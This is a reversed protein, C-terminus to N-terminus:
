APFLRRLPVARFHRRYAEMEEYARRLRDLSLRAKPQDRAAGDGPALRLTLDDIWALRIRGEAALLDLGARVLARSGAVAGCLVDLMLADDDQKLVEIVNYVAVTLQRLHAEIGVIPPQVGIVHVVGPQVAELAAQLAAPDSPLTYVILTPAQTLEVRRKWSPRSRRSYAEAWTQAGPNEACLIELRALPDPDRRWDELLRAPTGSEAELLYPGTERLDVLTAELEGRDSMALTYAVDFRGEPEPAKAGRWWLLALSHEEDDEVVIRRHHGGRGLPGAHSLHVGRAMLVPAPNGAGFPSLRALRRVLTEDLASLPVDADIQLPPSLPAAGARALASSLRQRLADVDAVSISLGAASAHGGFTRLLDSQAALSEYINHGYSTRASGFAVAEADDGNSAGQASTLLVVPRGYREALRSAVGGLVGSHWGPQYIVLAAHEFLARNTALLDEAADEVQRSIARRESNLGDMQHAIVLARTRDRTTLLEVALGADEMRGIANLRPGIQFSVQEASLNEPTLRALEMLALLGTRETSHLRELGLQLLYRTDDTQLAIDGVIGLAVLDLFRGVERERGLSTYLHQVLKFAVGVAPLSSLPHNPPLLKPNVVAQAAPLVPGPEHHDTVIVPVGVRRAADLADYETIGTDCTLLLGPARAAIERELSPVKIGHSESDRRPIYYSVDADLRSLAEFLLATSTQGDVDFDGWILIRRRTLSEQLLASAEALDPIAEPPAPSYHAPDLFARIRAPDTLGRRSLISALLEDDGCAALVSEAPSVAEPELWTRQQSLAVM